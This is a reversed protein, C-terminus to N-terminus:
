SRSLRHIQNKFFETLTRYDNDSLKSTHRSDQTLQEIVEPGYREVLGRRYGAANGDKMRNCARCQAHVNRINWRTATHARPIFHGADCKSVTIPRGCSICRGTGGLCDRLRVYRSFVRDLTDRASSM